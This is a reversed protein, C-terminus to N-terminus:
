RSALSVRPPNLQALAATPVYTVAVVSRDDDAAYALTVDRAATSFVQKGIAYLEVRRGDIHFQLKRNWDKVQLVSGDSMAYRGSVEHVDASTMYYRAPPTVKGVVTIEPLATQAQAALCAFAATIAILISRM